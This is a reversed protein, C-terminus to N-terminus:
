PTMSRRKGEEGWARAGVPIEDSPGFARSFHRQQLTTIKVEVHGAQGTFPGTVPPVHVDVTVGNQGDEFGNAKAVEQCLRRSRGRPRGLSTQCHATISGM